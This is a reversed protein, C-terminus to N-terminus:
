LGVGQVDRVAQSRAVQGAAEVSGSEEYKGGILEIAVDVATKGEPWQLGPRRATIADYLRNEIHNFGQSIETLTLDLPDGSDCGSGDIDDCGSLKIVLERISNQERLKM